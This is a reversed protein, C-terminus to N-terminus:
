LAVKVSNTSSLAIGTSTVAFIAATYSGSAVSPSISVFCKVLTNQSFSCSGLNWYVVQGVSNFLDMYVIGAFSSSLSSTYNVLVGKYGNITVQKLGSQTVATNPYNPTAAQVPVAQLVLMVAVGAALIAFGVGKAVL